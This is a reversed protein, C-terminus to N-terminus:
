VPTSTLLLSVRTCRFRYGFHALESQYVYMTARWIGSDSEVKAQDEYPIPSCVLHAPVSKDEEGLEEVFFAEGSEGLKM